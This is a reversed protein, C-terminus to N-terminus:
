SWIEGTVKQVADKLHSVMLVHDPDELLNAEHLQAMRDEAARLLSKATEVEDNVAAEIREYGANLDAHAVDNARRFAAAAADTSRKYDNKMADQMSALHLAKPTGRLVNGLGLLFTRLSM